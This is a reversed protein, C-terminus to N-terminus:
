LVCFISLHLDLCPGKTDSANAKNLHLEPPYNQNVMGAFHPNDIKLLDDLYRSTLNFSEISEAKNDNSLSTM